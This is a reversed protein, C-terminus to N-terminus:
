VTAYVFRQRGDIERSPASTLDVRDGAVVAVRLQVHMRGKGHSGSREAEGEGDRCCRARRVGRAAGCAQTDDIARVRARSRMDGRQMAIRGAADHRPRRCGAPPEGRPTAGEECRRWRPDRAGLDVAPRLDREDGARERAPPYPSPEGPAVAALGLAPVPDGKEESGASEATETISCAHLGDEEHAGSAVLPPRDQLRAIAPKTDDGDVPVRVCRPESRGVYRFRDVEHVDVGDGLDRPPVAHVAREGHRRVAGDRHHRRDGLPERERRDPRRRRMQHRVLDAHAAREGLRAHWLRPERRGAIESLPSGGDAGDSDRAHEFGRVRAPLAADEPEVRSVVQVGVEM